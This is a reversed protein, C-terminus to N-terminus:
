SGRPKLGLLIMQLGWDFGCGQSSGVGLAKSSPSFVVGVRSVHLLVLPFLHRKLGVHCGAFNLLMPVVLCGGNQETAQPYFAYICIDCGSVPSASIGKRHSQIM